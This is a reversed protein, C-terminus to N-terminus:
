SENASRLCSRVIRLAFNSMELEAALCNNMVLRTFISFKCRLEERKCRVDAKM